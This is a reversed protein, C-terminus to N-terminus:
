RERDSRGERAGCGQQQQAGGGGGAVLHQKHARRAAALRRQPTQKHMAGRVRGCGGAQRGVLGRRQRQAQGAAPQAQDVAGALAAQAAQGLGAGGACGGEQQEDVSPVAGEQGRGPGSCLASVVNRKAGRRPRLKALGEGRARNRDEGRM